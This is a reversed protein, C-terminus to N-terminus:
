SGSESAHVAPEDVEDTITKRFDNVNFHTLNNILAIMWVLHIFPFVVMYCAAFPLEKMEGESIIGLIVLLSFLASNPYAKLLWLLIADVSVTSLHYAAGHLLVYIISKSDANNIITESFGKAWRIRQRFLTAFDESATEYGLILKSYEVLYGNKKACLGITLDDFVTDIRKLDKYFRDKHVMFVQGPVSIGINM